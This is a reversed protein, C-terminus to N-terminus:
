RSWCRRSRPQLHGVVARGRVAARLQPQQAVLAGPDEQLPVAPRVLALEDHDVVLRWAATGSWSGSSGSRPPLTTQLVLKVSKDSLLTFVSIASASAASSWCSKSETSALCYLRGSMFSSRLSPKAESSKAPVFHFFKVPVVRHLSPVSVVRVEGAHQPPHALAELGPQVLHFGPLGLPPRLVLLQAHRRTRSSGQELEKKPCCTPTKLGGQM